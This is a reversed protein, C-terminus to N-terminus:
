CSNAQAELELLAESWNCTQRNSLYSTHIYVHRSASLPLSPSPSLAPSLSFSLSLRTLCQCPQRGLSPVADCCTCLMLLLSCCDCFQWPFALCTTLQFHM